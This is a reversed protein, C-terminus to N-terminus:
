VQLDRLGGRNIEKTSPQTVEAQRDEDDPRGKGKRLRLRTQQKPIISPQLTHTPPLLYALSQDSFNSPNSANEFIIICLIMLNIAVPLFLILHGIILSRRVQKEHGQPLRVRLKQRQQDAANIPSFHGM